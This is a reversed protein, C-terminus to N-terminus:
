KEPKIKIIILYWPKILKEMKLYNITSYNLFKLIM